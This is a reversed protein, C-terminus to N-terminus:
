MQTIMGKLAQRSEDKSNLIRVMSIGSADDLLPLFYKSCSICPNTIPGHLDCHLLDLVDKANKYEESRTPRPKRKSKCMECTGCIDDLKVNDTGIGDVLPITKQM